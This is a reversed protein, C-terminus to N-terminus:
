ISSEPWPVTLPGPPAKGPPTRLEISVRTEPNNRRKISDGCNGFQRKLNSGSIWQINRFLLKKM